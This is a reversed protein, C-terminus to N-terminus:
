KFDDPKTFQGLKSIESNLVNEVEAMRHQTDQLEEVIRRTDGEGGMQRHLDRLQQLENKWDNLQKM